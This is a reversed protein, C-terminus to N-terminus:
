GEDGVKAILLIINGAWSLNMGLRTQAFAENQEYEPPLTASLEFRGRQPTQPEGMALTVDISSSLREEFSPM